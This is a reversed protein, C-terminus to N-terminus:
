SNMTDLDPALAWRLRTMCLDLAHATRFVVVVKKLESVFCSDLLAFCYVLCSILWRWDLAVM